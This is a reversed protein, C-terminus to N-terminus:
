KLSLHFLSSGSLSIIVILFYILLFIGFLSCDIKEGKKIFLKVVTLFITILGIYGLIDSSAFSSCILVAMITFFIFNDINQMFVSNECLYSCKEQSLELLKNLRSFILSDKFM